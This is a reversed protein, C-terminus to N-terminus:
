LSRYIFGKEIAENENFFSKLDIILPNSTMKSKLLDLTIDSFEKHKNILIICDIDQISDLNTNTIGCKYMIEEDTLNPEYAYVHINFERLEKVVDFAKSSRSDRIDEKYTLGLVLVKSDKLVKGAQNLGKIALDAIFKPLADNTSRGAHIVKPHYGLQEAKFTLYHPDVSICHGGVLGPYYRHFNWKTGAAELVDKTKINMRSFILALENMLSINLDRQVNEIIKSAEAVKISPAKHVGAKCIISYVAAVKELTEKNIGSVVKIVKDITHKTDGPNIREPSYGILFDQPCKLGSFKELIPLCIDETVGPYVTSEYVVISGPQLNKGVLESASELPYLDPIKAQKLPTPVCIIIFNSQKIDEPNSTYLINTSIEEATFEARSDIRSKLEDIRRKNIDFGIVDLDQKAFELALPLGVYGLGIVCIKM